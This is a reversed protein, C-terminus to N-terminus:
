SEVPLTVTFVIAHESQEVAMEGGHARILQRASFLSWNGMSVRGEAIEFQPQFLSRLRDTALDIGVGEVRAAVTSGRHELSVAIATERDEFCSRLFSLLGSFATSLQQPRATVAPIADARLSVATEDGEGPGRGLAIADAWLKELDVAQVEAGDLNTFRQIREIVDQMRELSADMAQKLDAKLVNLRLKEDPGAAEGKAAVLM